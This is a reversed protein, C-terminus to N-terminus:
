PERRNAWIWPYLDPESQWVRDLTQLHDADKYETYYVIGGLVKLKDVMLLSGVVNQETDLTGHFAWFPIQLVQKARTPDTYGALPVAAAWVDPWRWTIDWTGLGGMSEGTLYIRRADISLEDQVVDVLERVLNAALSPEAHSPYYGTQFDLGAQPMEPTAGYWHGWELDAPEAPCQPVVIIAPFDHSLNPSVISRSGHFLSSAYTAPSNDAGRAARDHLFVLLPYAVAADYYSPLFLRYPLTGRPSDLTRAQMVQDLNQELWETTESESLSVFDPIMGTERWTITQTTKALLAGQGGEKDYAYVTVVHEGVTPQWRGRGFGDENLLFPPYDDLRQEGDAEFLVSKTGSPANAVLTIWAPLEVRELQGDTPDHGPVPTRFMVNFVSLTMSEPLGAGGGQPAGAEVSAAGAKGGSSSGSPTAAGSDGRDDVAGSGGTESGAAADGTGPLAESCAVVALAALSGALWICGPSIRV